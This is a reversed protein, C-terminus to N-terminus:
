VKEGAMRQVAQVAQVLQQVQVIALQGLPAYNRVYTGPNPRATLAIAEYFTMAEVFPKLAADLVPLVASLDVNNAPM